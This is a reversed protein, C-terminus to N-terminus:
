WLYTRDVAGFLGFTHSMFKGLPMMCESSLDLTPKISSSRLWNYSTKRRFTRALGLVQRLHLDNDARSRAKHSCFRNSKSQLASEGIALIHM